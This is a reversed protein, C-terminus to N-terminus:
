RIVATYRTLNIPNLESLLALVKKERSLKDIKIVTVVMKGKLYLVNITGSYPSNSSFNLETVTIHM